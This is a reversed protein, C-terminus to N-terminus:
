YKKRAFYEVINLTVKKANGVIYWRCALDHM